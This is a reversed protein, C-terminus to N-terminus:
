REILEVNEVIAKEGEGSMMIFATQWAAATIREIDEDTYQSFKEDVHKDNETMITIRLKM